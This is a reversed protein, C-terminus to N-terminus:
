KANCAMLAVREVNLSVFGFEVQVQGTVRLPQRQSLAVGYQQYVRPFWTTEIIGTEDELTAFSMPTKQPQALPRGRRDKKQTAEVQKATICWAILEVRRGAMAETIDACYYHRRQHQVQPWLYLPHRYPLCGIAEFRAQWVTRPESAPLDPPEPDSCALLNNIEQTAPPRQRTRGRQRYVENIIWRRQQQNWHRLLNNFAGAQELFLCERLSLPCRLYFETFSFFPRQRTEAIIQLAHKRHLGPVCHLGLRMGRGGDVCRTPYDSKLVCPALIQVGQRRTEEVYASRDYFGGGNSIVRAMFYAPHHAKLYACQFSVMAYSASHAKCFSYGAFSSIMSWVHAATAAAVNNAQCGVMFIAKVAQLREMTDTRGLSKRLYNQDKSSFGALEKAVLMVDEQYSLVGFSESLLSKMVPHVFWEDKLMGTRKFEHLRQLYTTIWTNAAPRVISSHIVLRDFDGSGAKANLQRMAPSEIYFCGMTKGAAVLRRTAMDDQPRWRKEDIHIGDESLDQLTDRIVALSRNGLIDIKVLGMDEAGDKEWAIAPFPKGAIIKKSPHTPVLQDVSCQTIILGGPHLGYHRPAGYLRRAHTFVPDWSGPLVARGGFRNIQSVQRKVDSIEAREFDHVRAVERMASWKRYHLHTSVMAVHQRGYRQLASAFVADREDWPFDLDIDPPDERESALFREFVLKYRIPDVNTLGLCYCIMSSAASGRGCTRRQQALDYVTLIYAAFHKQTVIRLEHELRERAQARQAHQYRLTIGQECLDRLRQEPDAHVCPPLHMDTAPHFRCRDLLEHGREIAAEQGRYAAPMQALAELSAALTTNAATCRHVRSHQRLADLVPVIAQDREATFACVPAAVLPVHAPVVGPQVDGRWYVEAGAERLLKLWGMSQVLAILHSCDPPPCLGDRWHRLLDAEAHCRSCLQSLRVYAAADPVMFILLEDDPTRLQAGIGFHACGWLRRCAPYAALDGDDALLLRTGLAERLAAWHQPSLTSQHLSFWTQAVLLPLSMGAREFAARLTAATASLAQDIPQPQWSSLQVTTPLSSM